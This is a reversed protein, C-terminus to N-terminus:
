RALLGLVSDLLHSFSFRPAHLLSPGMDFHGQLLCGVRGPEGPTRAAARQKLEPPDSERFSKKLQTKEQSEHTSDKKKTKKLITQTTQTTQDDLAMLERTNSKLSFFLSVTDTEPVPAPIQSSLLSVLTEENCPYTTSGHYNCNKSM